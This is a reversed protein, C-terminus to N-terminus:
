YYFRDFISLIVNVKILSLSNKEFFHQNASSGMKKKMQLYRSTFKECVFIIQKKQTMIIEHSLHDSLDCGFSDFYMDLVGSKELEDSLPIQTGVWLEKWNSNLCIELM